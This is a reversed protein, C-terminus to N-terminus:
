FHIWDIKKENFYHRASPLKHRKIQEMFLGYICMIM